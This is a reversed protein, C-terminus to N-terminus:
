KISWSNRAGTSTTTVLGGASFGMANLLEITPLDDFFASIPPTAGIDDGATVTLVPGSGGGPLHRVLAQPLGRRRRRLEARVSAEDDFSDTARASHDPRPLRQYRPDHDRDPRRWRGSTTSSRVAHTRRGPFESCSRITPAIDIAQVGTATTGGAFGPGGALFTAHLNIDHEHDVLDPMYGHQGFFQSPAIGCRAHSRRVPVAPAPTVVVDGSRSPHLADTGDVNRLDEKPLIQPGGNGTNAPDTLGEFAAVIQDRFTEYTPPRAGRRRSRSRGRQHLGPRHWRGLLGQGAGAASPSGATASTRPEPSSAPMRWSRAPTSPTGSRHSATIPPRRLDDPQRGLPRAGSRAKRRCGRLRRSTSRASALRGDPTGNGKSITTTPTPLATSTRRCNLALFQHSFEDTM